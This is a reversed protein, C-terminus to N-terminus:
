CSYYMNLENELGIEHHKTCAMDDQQILAKSAFSACLSTELSARWQQLAFRLEQM